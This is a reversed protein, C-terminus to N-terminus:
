AGYGLQPCSVRFGADRGTSQAFGSAAREESVRKRGIFARARLRLKTVARLARSQPHACVPGGSGGDSSSGFGGESRRAPRLFGPGSVQVSGVQVVSRWLTRNRAWGASGSGELPSSPIGSGNTLRWGEVPLEAPLEGIRAICGCRTNSVRQGRGNWLRVRCAIDSVCYFNQISVPPASSELRTLNGRDRRKWRRGVKV